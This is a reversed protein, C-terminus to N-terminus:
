TTSFVQRPATPLDHNKARLKDAIKKARGCIDNLSSRNDDNIKDIYKRYEDESMHNKAEEIAKRESIGMCMCTELADAIATINKDTYSDLSIGGGFEKWWEEFGGFMFLPINKSEDEHCDGAYQGNGLLIIVVAATAQDECAFTVKDSPNIVEYHYM